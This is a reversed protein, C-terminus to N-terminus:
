IKKSFNKIGKTIYYRYENKLKGKEITIKILFLRVIYNGYNGSVGDLDISKIYNRKEKEEICQAIYNYGNLNGSMEFINQRCLSLSIKEKINLLEIYNDEYFFKKKININFFKITTFSTSIVLFLIMMSILVEITIMAKKM